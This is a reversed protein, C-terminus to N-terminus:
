NCDETKVKKNKTSSNSMEKTFHTFIRMTTKMDENDVTEMITALDIEAETM